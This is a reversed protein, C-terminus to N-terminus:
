PASSWPMSWPKRPRRRAPRGPKKQRLLGDLGGEAFRQQWRWVMPRSVGARKAIELVPLREGSLLIIRARPVHKVPRRPNDVIEQLGARNRLSLLLSVTQAM